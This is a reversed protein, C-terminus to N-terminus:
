SKGHIENGCRPCTIVISGKGKPVRCVASCNPCTFYCHEKDARQQKRSNIRRTVPYWVKEMFHANESRRKELNRSFMRYLLAVFLVTSVANLVNYALTHDRGVIMAAIDLLLVAWVMTLGLRDFGNRGYMFRSLANGMRQFINM